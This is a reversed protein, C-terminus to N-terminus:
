ATCTPPQTSASTPAHLPAGCGPACLSRPGAAPTACTTIAPPTRAPSRHRVQRMCPAVLLLNLCCQVAVRMKPDALDCARMTMSPDALLLRCGYKEERILLNNSSIDQMMIGMEGCRAVTRLLENYEDTARHLSFFEAFVSEPVRRDCVSRMLHGLSNYHYTPMVYAFLPPDKVTGPHQVIGLVPPVRDGLGSLELLKLVNVENRMFNRNHLGDFRLDDENVVKLYSGNGDPLRRVKLAVRAGLPTPCAVLNGSGPPLRWDLVYV